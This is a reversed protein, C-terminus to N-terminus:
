NDKKVETQKNVQERRSPPLGRKANRDRLAADDDIEKVRLTDKKEVVTAPKVTNSDVRAVQIATTDLM